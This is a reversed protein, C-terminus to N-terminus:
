AAFMRFGEPLERDPLFKTADLVQGNVVVWCDDKSNHKKVEELTYEKQEVKGPEKAKEKATEAPKAALTEGGGSAGGGGSTSSVGAADAWSFTLNVAKSEPDIRITTAM